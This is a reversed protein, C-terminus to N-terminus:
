KAAVATRGPRRAKARALARGMARRARRARGMARRARGMAMKRRARARKGKGNLGKADDSEDSEYAERGEPGQMGEDAEDLDNHGDHGGELLHRRLSSALRHQPPQCSQQRPVLKPEACRMRYRKVKAAVATEQQDYNQIEEHARKQPAHQNPSNANMTGM